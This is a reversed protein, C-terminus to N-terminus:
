TLSSAILYETRAPIVRELYVRARTLGVFLLRRSMPSLEAFNCETLVVAAAAQGKFRRMHELLLAGVTWVPAGGAYFAGTFRQLTWASLTDIGQLQSREGGRMCIVAIEHLAFRRTLCREIAQITSTNVAEASDFM